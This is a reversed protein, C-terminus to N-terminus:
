PLVYVIGDGALSKRRAKSGTILRPPLLLLVLLFERVLTSLFLHSEEDVDVAAAGSIADVGGKKM